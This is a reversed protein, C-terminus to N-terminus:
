APALERKPMQYVVKCKPYSRLLRPIEQIKKWAPLKNGERDYVSMKGNLDVEARTASSVAGPAFKGASPDYDIRKKGQKALYANARKLAIERILEPVSVVRGQRATEDAAMKVLAEYVKKNEFYTVKRKQKGPTNIYCVQVPLTSKDLFLRM